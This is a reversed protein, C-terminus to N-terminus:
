SVSTRLKEQLFVSINSKIGLINKTKYVKTAVKIERKGTYESDVANVITSSSFMGSQSIQFRTKEKEEKDHPM